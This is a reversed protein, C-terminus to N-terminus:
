FLFFDILINDTIFQEQFVEVDRCKPMYLISIIVLLRVLIVKKHRFYGTSRYEGKM